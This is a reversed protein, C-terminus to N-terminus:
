EFELSSGMLCVMSDVTVSDEQTIAVHILSVWRFHRSKNEEAAAVMGPMAVVKDASLSPYDPKGSGRRLSRRSYVPRPQLLRQFDHV